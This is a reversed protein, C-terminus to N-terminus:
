SMSGAQPKVLEGDYDPAPLREGIGITSMASVLLGVVTTIRMHANKTLVHIDISSAPNNGPRHDFFDETSEAIGLEMGIPISTDGVVADRHHRGQERAAVSLSSEVREERHKSRGCGRARRGPEIRQDVNEDVLRRELMVEGRKGPGPSCGELWLQDVLAAALGRRTVLNIRGVHECGCEDSM